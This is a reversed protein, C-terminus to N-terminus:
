RCKCDGEGCAHRQLATKEEERYATLRKMAEDFDVKQGDFEPGDVCAYKVEGGVSVRCCGCMGTGDVMLPNMSVITEVGFEKTTKCVFKMMIVPGIAIVEDFHEKELLERLVDTVLGKRGKSGDDTTIFLRNCVAKCEEELIILGANRAGIIVDVNVGRRFLEKVEPYVVAVGVGGGICLVHGKEPLDAPRGLPGLFDALAEGPEMAALKQTSYGVVQFIITVSGKERDCDSITLPIREGDRDARLMVFQGPAARHAARPALIDMRYTDPNLQRKTLIQYL